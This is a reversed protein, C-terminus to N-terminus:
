VKDLARYSAADGSDAQRVIAPLSRQQANIRRPSEFRVQPKLVVAFAKDSVRHPRNM